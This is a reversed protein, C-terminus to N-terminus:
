QSPTRPLSLKSTRHADSDIQKLASLQDTLEAIRKDRDRIRQRLSHVVLNPNKFTVSASAAHQQGLWTRVLGKMVALAGNPEDASAPQFTRNALFRNWRASSDAFPGNPAVAISQRFSAAAAERNQFLAIMARTFHVQDCSRHQTCTSLLTEQERHITQLLVTDTADTQFLPAPDPPPTGNVMACGWLMGTMLLGFGYRLWMAIGWKQRPRLTKALVLKASPGSRSPESASVFLRCFGPMNSKQGGGKRAAPVDRRKARVASCIQQAEGDSPTNNWRPKPSIGEGSRDSVSTRSRSTRCSVSNAFSRVSSDHLPGSSAEVLDFAPNLTREGTHCSRAPPLM